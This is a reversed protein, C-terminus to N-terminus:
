LDMIEHMAREYAPSNISNRGGVCDIYTEEPAQGIIEITHGDTKICRDFNVKNYNPGFMVNANPQGMEACVRKAYNIIADTVEPAAGLKGNAEFSDIVFTLQGDVKAFYCMSNGLSNGAKDVIEIGNVFANMLHQPAAFSNFSGVSTCCGVHNGFFLNRGVNDKDWLRVYLDDSTEKLEEVDRANKKHIEIHDKFTQIDPNNQKWYDNTEFEKEFAKIIKPLTKQGPENIGKEIMIAKLTELENPDLKSALESSFEDLLKQKAAQIAQKVDIKVTFQEYSDKDFNMWRNFDLQNEAYLRATEQNEPIDMIIDTFRRNPNKEILSILKNFNAKFGSNSIGAFLRSIYNSDYTIATLLEETPEINLLRYIETNLAKTFATNQNPLNIHAEVQAELPKIARDNIRAQTYLEPKALMEAKQRQLQNLYAQKKNEPIKNNQQISQIKKDIVAVQEEITPPTVYKENLNQAQLFKRIIDQKENPVNFETIFDEIQENYPKDTAFIKDTLEKQAKTMQPTDIENIIKLLGAEDVNGVLASIIELKALRQEPHPLQALKTKLTAKAEPSLNSLSAANSTLQKLGKYRLGLAHRLGTEGIVDIINTVGRYNQTLTNTVLDETVNMDQHTLYKINDNFFEISKVFQKAQLIQEPTEIKELINKIYNNPFKKNKCLEIVFSRTEPLNLNEIIGPILETDIQETENDIKGVLEEAFDLRFKTQAATQGCNDIIKLMTGSSFTKGDKYKMIFDKILPTQEPTNLNEIIRPILKNDIKGALEEAFNLRTKTQENNGNCQEVIKLVTDAQIIEGESHKIIFDTVLSRSEESCGKITQLANHIYNGDFNTENLLRTAIEFRQSSEKGNKNDWGNSLSYLIDTLADTSIRRDYTSNDKPVLSAGKDPDKLKSNIMDIILQRYSDFSTESRLRSLIQHIDSNEINPNDLLEKAFEIKQDVIGSVEEPQDFGRFRTSKGIEMLLDCILSNEVDDREILYRAFEKQKAAIESNESLKGYIDAIDNNSLKPNNILEDVFDINAPNSKMTYILDNINDRDYKPDQIIKDIKEEIKSTSDNILEAFRNSNIYDFIGQKNLKNYKEIITNVDITNESTLLSLANKGLKDKIEQPVQKWLEVNEPNLTCEISYDNKEIFSLIVKSGISQLDADSFKDLEAIVQLYTETYSGQDSRKYDSYFSLSADEKIIDRIRKPTNAIANKIHQCNYENLPSRLEAIDKFTISALEETTLNKFISFMEKNYAYNGAFSSATDETINSQKVFDIFKNATEIDLQNLVEAMSTYQAIKRILVPNLETLIKITQENAKFRGLYINEMMSPELKDEYKKLLEIRERLESAPINYQYNLETERSYPNRKLLSNESQLYDALKKPLESHLKACEIMNDLNEPTFFKKFEFLSHSNEFSIKKTFDPEANELFEAIKEANPIEEQSLFHYLMDRSIQSRYSVLHQLKQAITIKAKMNQKGAADLKLYQDTLRSLDYNTLKEMGEPFIRAIEISLNYQEPNFVHQKDPIKEYYKYDFKEGLETRLRTELDTYSSNRASNFLINAILNRNNVGNSVMNKVLEINKKVQALQEETYTAYCYAEDGIVTVRSESPKDKNFEKAWKNYENAININEYFSDPHSEFLVSPRYRMFDEQINSDLSKFFEINKKFEEPKIGGMQERFYEKRLNKLEKALYSNESDAESDLETMLKDFEKINEKFSKFDNMRAFDEFGLEDLEGHYTFRKGTAHTYDLIAESVEAVSIDPNNKFFRKINEVQYKSFNKKNTRSLSQLQDMLENVNQAIKKDGEPYKKFTTSKALPNGSETVTYTGDPIFEGNENYEGNELIVERIEPNTLEELSPTRTLREAFPALTETENDKSNTRVETNSKDFKSSFATQERVMLHLSSIMENENKCEIKRGDPLNIKYGEKKSSLEEVTVGKLQPLNDKLYNQSNMRASRSGSMWMILHSIIKIQGLNYGQGKFEEWLLETLNEASIDKDANNYIALATEFATFGVIDTAFAACEGLTSPISKELVKAYIENANVAGASFKEGLANIVKSSTKSVRNVVAQTVTSGFVGAFAGFGFSGKAGDAVFAETELFKDFSNEESDFKITRNALNSATGTALTYAAMKTGENLAPGLLSVAKGSFRLAGQLLKNGAQKSAISVGLKSFTGMATTALVQGGKAEAAWGLTMVMLLAEGFGNVVTNFTSDNPNDAVFNCAKLVADKYEKTLEGKENTAKGADIIEFLQKFAEPNFDIGWKDANNGYIKKFGENFKEPNLAKLESARQAFERCSQAWQYHNEGDIGLKNLVYGIGESGLGFLGLNDTYQDNYQACTEYLNTLVEAAKIQTILNERQPEAEKLEDETRLTIGYALELINSINDFTPELENSTIIEKIENIDSIQRIAEETLHSLREIIKKGEETTSDVGLSEAIFRPSYLKEQRHIENTNTHPIVNNDMFMKTFDKLPLPKFAMIGNEKTAQAQAKRFNAIAKSHEKKIIEDLEKQTYKKNFNNGITYYVQTNVADQRLEKMKFEGNPYLYITEITGDTYETRIIEGGDEDISSQTTVIEESADSISKVFGMFDADKIALKEAFVTQMYKNEAADLVNDGAADKLHQFVCQLENIELTGDNNTDYANFLNHFKKDVQEKRVGQKGKKLQERGNKGEISYENFDM